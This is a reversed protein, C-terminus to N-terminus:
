QVMWFMVFLCHYRSRTPFMEAILSYFKASKIDQILESRIHDGVISIMQNQITKSTYKANQPANKLHKALVSDTEARFRVLEIFNGPNHSGQDYQEVFFTVTGM